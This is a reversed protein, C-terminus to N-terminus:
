RSRAVKLLRTRIFSCLCSRGVLLKASIRMRLAVARLHGLHVEFRQALLDPDRMTVDEEDADDYSNFLCTPDIHGM